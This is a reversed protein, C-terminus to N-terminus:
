ESHFLENSERIINKIFNKKQIKNFFKKAVNIKKIIIEYSINDTTIQLESHIQEIKNEYLNNLVNKIKELIKEKTEKEWKENKLIYWTTITAGSKSQKSTTKYENKCVKYFLVAIDFEFKTLLTLDILDEISKDDHINNLSNSNSNSNSQFNTEIIIEAM